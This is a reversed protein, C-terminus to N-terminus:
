DEQEQLEKVKSFLTFIEAAIQRNTKLYIADMNEKSDAIKPDVYPLHFRYTADPIFPCNKDAHDCTTIAIYPKKNELDDFSKSYGVISKSSDEFSIYYKPNQHSFDLLSFLFGAKKLTKVTNRHFATIETGGSFCNIKIDFYQAAFFGWVQAIQSRRSNHTCIFTLNVRKKIKFITNIADAIKHLLVVREESIDTQKVADEFFQKVNINDTRIM